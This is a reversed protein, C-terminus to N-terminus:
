LPRPVVGLHRRLQQLQAVTMLLQGAPVQNSTIVVEYTGVKDLLIEEPISHAGPNTVLDRVLKATSTTNETGPRLPTDDSVAVGNVMEDTYNPHVLVGM